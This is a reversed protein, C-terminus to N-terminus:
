RESHEVGYSNGGRVEENDHYTTSEPIVEPIDGAGFVELEIFDSKIEASVMKKEVLNEYVWAAAMTEFEEQTLAIKM